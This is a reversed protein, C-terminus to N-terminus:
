GKSAFSYICHATGGHGNRFAALLAQIGPGGATWPTQGPIIVNV